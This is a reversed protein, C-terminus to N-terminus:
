ISTVLAKIVLNWGDVLVFLLVKFPLSIMIPPLMIMGMSMLVAATVMDVVLFPIFIIVGMQFATKIESIMYAPILAQLPIDDSSQPKRNRSIKMFLRLDKKRAHKVMFTRVPAVARKVAEKQDIKKDLFPLFANDHIRSIVDGMTFLTLFLALGILIQNSPMQQTAIARRVFSLVIVIRTFSTMMVLISPALSLVTLILIIQIGTSVQQPSDVQGLELSVKPFNFPQDGQVDVAPSEVEQAGASVGGAVTIVILVAMLWSLVKLGPGI